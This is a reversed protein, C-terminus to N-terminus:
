PRFRPLNDKIRRKQTSGLPALDSTMAAIADAHMVFYLPGPDEIESNLVSLLRQQVHQASDIWKELVSHQLEFMKALHAGTLLANEVPTRSALILQYIHVVDAATSPGLVGLDSINAKYVIPDIKPMTVTTDFNQGIKANGIAEFM